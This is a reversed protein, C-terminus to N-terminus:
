IRWQGPKIEGCAAEGMAVALANATVYIGCNISDEHKPCMPQGCQAGNRPAVAEM